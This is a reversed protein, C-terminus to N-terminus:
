YLNWTKPKGKFIKGLIKLVFKKSDEKIKVNKWFLGFFNSINTLFKTHHEEQISFINEMEM